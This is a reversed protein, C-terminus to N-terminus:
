IIIGNLLLSKLNDKEDELADINELHIDSVKVYDGDLFTYLYIYRNSPIGFYKDYNLPPNKVMKVIRLYCKQEAYLGDFGSNFSTSAVEHMTSLKSAVDGATGVLGTVGSAILYPNETVAGAGISVLSGLASISSKIAIQTKEDNLQQQNSRSISVKIGIVATVSKIVYSKTHNCINVKATGDQYNVIMYIRIESGKIDNYDLEVFGYYPIYLEYKTYPSYDMFTNTLDLISNNFRGILLYNSLPGSASKGWYISTGYISTSGLSVEHITSANVEIEMPFAVISLLSQALNDHAIVENMVLEVDNMDGFTTTQPKAIGFTDFSVNPLYSVPSIIESLDYWPGIKDIYSLAYSTKNKLYPNFQYAYNLSKKQIDLEYKLPILKDELDENRYIVNSTREIIAPLPLFKSKLTMLEDEDLYLRFLKNNVADLSKIFYYRKFEDIYVYNINFLSTTDTYADVDYENGDDIYSIDNDVGDNYVVDLLKMVDNYNEIEVDIIPNSINTPMRLYGDFEDIFTLAKNVKEKESQNIFLQLKM